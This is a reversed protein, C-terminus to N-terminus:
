YYRNDVVSTVRWGNYSLDLWVDVSKHYIDEEDNYDFTCEVCAEDIVGQLMSENIKLDTITADYYEELINKIMEYGLPEKSTIKELTGLYFKEHSYQEINTVQWGSDYKFFNISYDCEFDVFENEGFAKVIMNDTKYKRSIDRSLEEIKTIKVPSNLREFNEYIEIEKAIQKDSVKFNYSSVLAGICVIVLLMIITIKKQKSVKRSIYKIIKKNDLNDSLDNKTSENKVGCYQCFLDDIDIKRGCNSCFM